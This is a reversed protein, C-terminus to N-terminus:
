APHLLHLTSQHTYRLFQAAYERHGANNPHIQDPAALNCLNWMVRYPLWYVPLGFADRAYEVADQLMRSLTQRRAETGGAGVCNWWGHAADGAWVTRATAGTARSVAATWNLYATRGNTDLNTVVVTHAATDASLTDYWLLVPQFTSSSNPNRSIFVNSPTNVVAGDVQLQWDCSVDAGYLALVSVVVVRGTLTFQASAGATSTMRGLGTFADSAPWAASSPLYQVREDAPLFTLRQAGPLSLFVLADLMCHQHNSLDQDDLGPATTPPTPGQQNDNYATLIHSPSLGDDQGYMQLCLQPWNTGPVALNRESVGLAACVLLSFRASRPLAGDGWSFSDGFFQLSSGSPLLPRAASSVATAAADDARLGSGNCCGCVERGSAAVVSVPFSAGAGAGRRVQVVGRESSTEASRQQRATAAATVPAAQSVNAQASRLRQQRQQQRQLPLGVGNARLAQKLRRRRVLRQERHGSLSM